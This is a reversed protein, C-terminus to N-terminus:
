CELRARLTVTMYKNKTRQTRQEGTITAHTDAFVYRAHRGWVRQQRQVPGITAQKRRVFPNNASTACAELRSMTSGVGGSVSSVKGFTSTIADSGCPTECITDPLGECTARPRTSNSTVSDEKHDAAILTHFRKLVNSAPSGVSSMPPLVSALSGAPPRGPVSVPPACATSTSTFASFNRADTTLSPRCGKLETSADGLSPPATHVTLRPHVTSRFTRHRISPHNCSTNIHTINTPYAQFQKRLSVM